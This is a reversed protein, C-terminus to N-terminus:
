LSVSAASTVPTPHQSILGGNGLVSSPCTGDTMPLKDRPALNSGNCIGFNSQLSPETTLLVEVRASLLSTGSGAGRVTHDLFM